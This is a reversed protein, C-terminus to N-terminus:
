RFEVNLWKTNPPYFFIRWQSSMGLGWKWGVQTYPNAKIYEEWVDKDHKEKLILSSNEWDYM